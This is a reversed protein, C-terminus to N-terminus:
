SYLDRLLSLSTPANRLRTRGILKDFIREKGTLKEIVSLAGKRSQYEHVWSSTPIPMILGGELIVQERQEGSFFPRSHIRFYRGAVTSPATYSSQADLITGVRDFVALFRLGFENM